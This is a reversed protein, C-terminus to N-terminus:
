SSQDVPVKIKGRKNTREYNQKSSM